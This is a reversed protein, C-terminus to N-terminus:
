QKKYIIYWNLVCYFRDVIIGCTYEVYVLRKKKSM